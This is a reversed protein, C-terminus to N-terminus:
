VCPGEFEEITRTALGLLDYFANVAARLLRPETAEFSIYLTTNDVRLERAVKDQNLEDDVSLTKMVTIAQAETKYCIASTHKYEM